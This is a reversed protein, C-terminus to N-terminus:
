VKRRQIAGTDFNVQYETMSLGHRRIILKAYSAAGLINRKVIKERLKGLETPTAHETKVM